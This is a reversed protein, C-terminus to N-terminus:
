LRSRSGPSNAKRAPPRRRRAILVLVTVIPLVAGLIFWERPVGVGHAAIVAVEGVIEGELIVQASGVVQGLRLPAKLALGDQRRDVIGRKWKFELRLGGIQELSLLEAWSSGAVLQVSKAQGFLATVPVTFIQRGAALVQYEQWHNFGYELLWRADQWRREQSSKLIVGVLERGGGRATAVLCHGAQATYGTKFGTAWPYYAEPRNQQLLRNTNTWCIGQWYYQATGAAQRLFDNRSAALALLGLDRPTSLHGPTDYGDPVLFYSNVAGLERARSNMRDVFAAVAKEIDMEEFGSLRRGVFVAATYAADNGSPLFLAYVLEAVTLRDGVKLKAVSSSPGIKNIEEGVRVVERLDASEVLLLATLIKTTSAPPFPKDANKEYLVKGSAVDLLFAGEASLQGPDAATAPRALLLIAVALVSIFFRGRKM